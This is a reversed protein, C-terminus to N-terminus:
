PLDDIKWLGLSKASVGSEEQYYGENFLKLPEPFLFPSAQLNLMRWDGTVVDYNRYGPFTTTLLYVSRSRKINQVAMSIHKNSFHVLCDRCLILDVAPLSDKLLNMMKFAHNESSFRKRNIEILEEVIDAGLYNANGIDVFKMWNFDGCPIDLIKNVNYQDIVSSVIKVVVQTQEKTSGPGSVTEGKQKKRYQYLKSFILKVPRFRNMFANMHGKVYNVYYQIGKQKM